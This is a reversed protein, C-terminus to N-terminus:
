APKREYSSCWGRASVFKGFVIACAGYSAGPDATYIACNACTQGPRYQTFRKRDVQGAESRYDIAQADSDSDKLLEDAARAAQAGPLALLPTLAIIQRRSIM